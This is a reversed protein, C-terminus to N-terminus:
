AHSAWYSVVLVPWSLGFSREKMRLFDQSGMTSRSKNDGIISDDGGNGRHKEGEYGATQDPNSVLLYSCGSKLQAGIHKGVTDYESVSHHQVRLEWIAGVLGTDNDNPFIGAQCRSGIYHTPSLYSDNLWNVFVGEYGFRQLVLKSTM